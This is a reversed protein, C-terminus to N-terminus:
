VTNPSLPLARGPVWETVVRVCLARNTTGRRGPDLSRRDKAPEDGRSGRRLSTYGRRVTCHQATSRTVGVCWTVVDEDADEDEDEDEAGNGDEGEDADADADAILVPMVCM